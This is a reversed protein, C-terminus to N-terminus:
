TSPKRPQERRSPAWQNARRNEKALRAIDELRAARTEPRKANTLWELIGRRASPPFTDWHARSGAHRDFARSLDDPVLLATVDELADWTGNAKARAVAAAGDAKMLGRRELDAVHAKNKASWKSTAKRPTVLLSTHAQDVKRPLSDIWGVCLAEEVIDSWSVSGGSSPKVTVIWAGRLSDHNNGFWDRLEARSAVIVSPYDRAARKGDPMAAPRKAKPVTPKEVM